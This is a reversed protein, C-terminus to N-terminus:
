GGMQVAVWRGMLEDIQGHTHGSAKKDSWRDIYGDACTDTLKNTFGHRDAQLDACNDARRRNM